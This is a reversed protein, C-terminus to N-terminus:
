LDSPHQIRLGCGPCFKAEPPVTRQCNPCLFIVTVHEPSEIAAKIGSAQSVLSTLDTPLFPQTMHRQYVAEGLQRYVERLQSELQSRKLSQGVGQFTSHVQDWLNDLGSPNKKPPEPTM